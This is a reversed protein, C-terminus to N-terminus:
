DWVWTKVNTKGGIYYFTWTYEEPAATVTVTATKTEAAGALTATIEYTGVAGPTWPSTIKNGDITYEVDAADADEVECTFTVEEGLVITSPTATFSVLVPVPVANVTVTATKSVAGELSATITYTGVAAPTWPSTIVEENVTYVVENTTNVTTSTLTVSEGLTIEAPEATFSTITPVIAVVESFKATLNVDAHPATYTYTLNTSVQNDEADYWGLFDAGDDPTATCTVTSTYVAAVYTTGVTTTTGNVSTLYPATISTSGNGEITINQSHNLATYNSIKENSINSSGTSTILNYTNSLEANAVGTSRPAWNKRNNISSGEGGWEGDTGFIAYYGYGGWADMNRYYLNTNTIKTMKYGQSWSDHGIMVQVCPNTWGTGDFYIKANAKLDWAMANFNACLLLASVLTLLIKKM